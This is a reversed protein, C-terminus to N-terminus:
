IFRSVVYAVLLYMAPTIILSVWDVRPKKYPSFRMYGIIVNVGIAVILPIKPMGLLEPALLNWIQQFIFGDYLVSFVIIFASILLLIPSFIFAAGIKELTTMDKFEKTAMNDKLRMLKHRVM